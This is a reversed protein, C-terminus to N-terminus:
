NQQPQRKTDILQILLVPTLSVVAIIGCMVGAAGSLGLKAYMDPFYFPGCQLPIGTLM